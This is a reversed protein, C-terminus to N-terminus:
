HSFVAIQVFYTVNDKKIMEQAYRSFLETNVQSWFYFAILICKFSSLLVSLTKMEWIMKFLDLKSNIYVTSGLQKNPQLKM